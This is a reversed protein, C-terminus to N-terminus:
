DFGGDPSSETDTNQGFHGIATFIGIQQADVGIAQQKSFAFLMCRGGHSLNFQPFGADPLYPKGHEGRMLAPPVAGTYRALMRLLQTNARRSVDRPAITEAVDWLWVHVEDDLLELDDPATVFELGDPEFPDSEFPKPTAPDMRM